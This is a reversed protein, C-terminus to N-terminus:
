GLCDPSDKRPSLYLVAGAPVDANVQVAVYKGGFKSPNVWASGVFGEVGKMKVTRHPKTDKGDEAQAAHGTGNGNGTGAPAAPPRRDKEMTWASRAQM